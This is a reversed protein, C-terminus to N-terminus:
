LDQIKVDKIIGDGENNKTMDGKSCTLLHENSNSLYM